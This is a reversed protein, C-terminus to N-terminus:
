LEQAAKVLERASRRGSAEAERKNAHALMRDFANRNGFIYEISDHKKGDDQRGSVMGDELAYKLVLLCNEEGHDRLAEAIFDSRVDGRSLKAGTREFVEAHRAFVRQVDARQYPRLGELQERLPDAPRTRAIPKPEAPPEPAPPEPEPGAADGAPVEAERPGSRDPQDPRPDLDPDSVPDPDPVYPADLGRRLGKEETETLLYALGYRDIFQAYFRHNRFPELAKVIASHRYDKKGKASVSIREGVQHLALGPVWVLEEDEDWHAFGEHALDALAKRAGEADLGTEHCLTPLSLPYIGVISAAPCSMLYLAVLQASANGRLRKGSGRVWFMPSITAYKRM